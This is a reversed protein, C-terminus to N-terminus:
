YDSGSYPFKVILDFNVKTVTQKMSDVEFRIKCCGPPKKGTVCEKTVYYDLFSPSSQSPKGILQTIFRVKKNEFFSTYSIVQQNYMFIDNEFHLLYARNLADSTDVRSFGYIPTDKIYQELKIFIKFKKFFAQEAVTMKKEVGCSFFM